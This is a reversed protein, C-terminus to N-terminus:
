FDVVLAMLARYQGHAYITYSGGSPNGISIGFTYTGPGLYNIEFLTIMERENAADSNALAYTGIGAWTTGGDTSRALRAFCYAGATDSYVPVMGWLLVYHYGDLTITIRPDPLVYDGIVATTSPYVTTGFARVANLVRRPQALKGAADLMAIGGAQGAAVRKTVGGQVIPVLDGPNVQADALAQVWDSFTKNAM